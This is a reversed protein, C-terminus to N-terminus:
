KRRDKMKIFFIYIKYFKTALLVKFKNKLGIKKNLLGDNLYQGVQKEYNSLDIDIKEKEIIYKYKYFRCIYHCEEILYNNINNNKLIEIMRSSADLSTIDKKINRNNLASEDNFCYNYLAKNIHSIKKIDNFYELCFLADEKIFIKENFRIKKIKNKQFLKNWVSFNFGNFEFFVNLIEQKSFLQKNWLHIEENSCIGVYRVDCFCCDSNTSEIKKLMLSYMDKEIFDDSDVFGIYDGKANDLGVNRASSVGSNEKHIVKIRKDKKELEDCIQPSNDTSGDDILIIELNKYTQNVISEICRDLYKEVNYVPVIVSILPNNKKM